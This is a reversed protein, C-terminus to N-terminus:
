FKFLQIKETPKTEKDNVIVNSNYNDDNDYNDYNKMVMPLQIYM